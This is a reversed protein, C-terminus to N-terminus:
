ASCNLMELGSMGPMMNDLLLLDIKTRDLLALADLASEAVEVEYGARSLRRSLMDRNNRDDDVVLLPRASRSEVRGLVADATDDPFTQLDASTM